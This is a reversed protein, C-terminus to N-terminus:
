CLFKTYEVREQKLKKDFTFIKKQTKINIAFSEMYNFLIHRMFRMSEALLNIRKEYTFPVLKKNNEWDFIKDPLFINFVIDNNETIRFTGKAMPKTFQSIIDDEKGLDVGEFTILSINSTAFNKYHVLCNRLDILYQIEETNAIREYVACNTSKSVMATISKPMQRIENTFLPYLIHRLNDLTIRALSIFAYFEYMLSRIEPTHMIFAHAFKVTNLRNMVEQSIVKYDRLINKLHYILGSLHWHAYIGKLNHVESIKQYKDLISNLVNEMESLEKDFDSPPRQIQNEM